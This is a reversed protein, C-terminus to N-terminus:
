RLHLSSFRFFSYKIIIVNYIGTNQQLSFTDTHKAAYVRNHKEILDTNAITDDLQQYWVNIEAKGPM